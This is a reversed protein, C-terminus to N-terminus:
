AGPEDFLVVPVPQRPLLVAGVEVEAGGVKIAPAPTPPAELRDLALRTLSPWLDGGGFDEASAGLAELVELVALAEMPSPADPLREPQGELTRWILAGAVLGGAGECLRRYARIRGPLDGPDALLDVRFADLLPTEHEGCELALGRLEKLTEAGGGLELVRAAQVVAERSGDHPDVQRYAELLRLLPERLDPRRRLLAEGDRAADAGGGARFLELFTESPPAELTLEYAQRVEDEEAGLGDLRAYREARERLTGDASGRRVLFLWAPLPSREAARATPALLCLVEAREELPIEQELGLLAQRVLLRSELGQLAQQALLVPQADKRDPSQPHLALFLDRNLNRRFPQFGPHRALDARTWGPLIYSHLEPLGAGVMRRRHLVRVARVRQAWCDAGDPTRLARVVEARSLENSDGLLSDWLRSSQPVGHENLLLSVRRLQHDDMLPWLYCANAPAEGLAELRQAYSDTAAEELGGESHGVRSLLAGTLPDQWLQWSEDWLVAGLVAAGPQGKWERLMAQLAPLSSAPLRRFAVAALAPGHKLDHKRFAQTLSRPVRDDLLLRVSDRPPVAPNSRGTERREPNPNLASLPRIQM